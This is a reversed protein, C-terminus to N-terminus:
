EETEDDGTGERDDFKMFGAGGDGVIRHYAAKVHKIVDDELVLGPALDPLRLINDNSYGECIINADYDDTTAPAVHKQDYHLYWLITAPPDEDVNAILREVATQLLRHSEIGEKHVTSGYIM